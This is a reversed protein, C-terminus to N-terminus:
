TTLHAHIKNKKQKQVSHMNSIKAYNCIARFAIRNIKQQQLVAAAM